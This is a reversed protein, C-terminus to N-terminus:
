AKRTAAFMPQVILKYVFNLTLEINRNADARNARIIEETHRPLSLIIYVSSNQVVISVHLKYCSIEVVNLM